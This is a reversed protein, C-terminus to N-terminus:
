GRLPPPATLGRRLSRTLHFILVLRTAAAGTAVCDRFAQEVWGFRVHWVAPYPSPASRVEYSASTEM